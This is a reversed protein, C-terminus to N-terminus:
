WSTPARLRARQARRRRHREVKDRAIGLDTVEAGEARALAILAYGNSYVIEGPEPTAARRCWSTAPALVAVKPRRHVPLSSHNMAAALM